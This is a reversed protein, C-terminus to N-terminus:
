RRPTWSSPPLPDSNGWNTGGGCTPDDVDALIDECCKFSISCSGLNGEGDGDGETFVAIETGEMKLPYELPCERSGTQCTIHPWISLTGPVSHIICVAKRPLIRPCSTFVGNGTQANASYIPFVMLIGCVPLVIKLLIRM